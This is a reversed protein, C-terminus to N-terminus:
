WKITRIEQVKKFNCIIYSNRSCSIFSFLRVRDFNVKIKYFTGRQHIYMGCESPLDFETTHVNLVFVMFALLFFIFNNMILDEKFHLLKFAMKMNTFWKSSM